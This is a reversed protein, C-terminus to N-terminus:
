DRSLLNINYGQLEVLVSPQRFATLAVTARGGSHWEVVVGELNACPGGLVRVKDGIRYGGGLTSTGPNQATAEVQQRIEKICEVVRQSAVAIHRAIDANLKPNDSTIVYDHPAGFALWEVGIWCHSGPFWASSLRRPPAKLGQFTIGLRVSLSRAPTPGSRSDSDYFELREKFGEYNRSFVLDWVKGGPEKHYGKALLYERHLRMVFGVFEEYPEAACRGPQSATNETREQQQFIVRAGLRAITDRFLQLNRRWEPNRTDDASLKCELRGGQPKFNTVCTCRSLDLTVSVISQTPFAIIEPGSRISNTVHALHSETVLLVGQALRIRAIEEKGLLTRRQVGRVDPFLLEMVRRKRFTDLRASLAAGTGLAVVISIAMIATGLDHRRHPRDMTGALGQVVVNFIIWVGLAIGWPLVKTLGLLM